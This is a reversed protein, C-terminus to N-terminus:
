LHTHTHTHTHSHTNAPRILAAPPLTSLVPGLLLATLLHVPVDSHDIVSHVVMRMVVLGCKLQVVCLYCVYVLKINYKLTQKNMTLQDIFM